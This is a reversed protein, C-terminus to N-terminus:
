KTYKNVFSVFKQNRMTYLPSDTCILATDESFRAIDNIYKFTFYEDLIQQRIKKLM